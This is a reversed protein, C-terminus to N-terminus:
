PKQHQCVPDQTDQPVEECQLMNSISSEQVGAQLPAHSVPNQLGHHMAGSQPVATPIGDQVARRVRSLLGQFFSFFINQMGFMSEKVTIRKILNKCVPHPDFGNKKQKQELIVFEQGVKKFNVHFQLKSCSRKIGFCVEIM